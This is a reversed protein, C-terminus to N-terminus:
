EEKMEILPEIKESKIEGDLEDKYSIFARDPNLDPNNTEAQIVFSTYGKLNLLSTKGDKDLVQFSASESAMNESNVLKVDVIELYDAADKEIVMEYQVRNGEVPTMKSSTQKFPSCSAVLLLLPLALLSHKFYAKM